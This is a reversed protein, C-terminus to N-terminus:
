PRTTGSLALSRRSRPGLEPDRDQGGPRRRVLTDELSIQGETGACVIHVPRGSGEQPVPGVIEDTTARLNAFGAIYVREAELSALIARTGNTTTM